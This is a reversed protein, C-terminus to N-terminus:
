FLVVFLGAPRHLYGIPNGIPVLTGPITLEYTNKVPNTENKVEYPKLM